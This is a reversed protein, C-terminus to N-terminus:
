GPPKQCTNNNKNSRLQKITKLFSEMVEHIIYLHIIEKPPIIPPIPGLQPFTKTSYSKYQVHAYRVKEKLNRTRISSEMTRTLERTEISIDQGTRSVKTIFLLHIINSSYHVLRADDAHTSAAGSAFYTHNTVQSCPSAGDM